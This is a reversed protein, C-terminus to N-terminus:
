CRPASTDVFALRHSGPGDGQRRAGGSSAYRRNVPDWTRGRTPGLPFATRLRRSGTVTIPSSVRPCTGSAGLAGPLARPTPHDSLWSVQRPGSRESGTKSPLGPNGSLVSWFRNARQREAVIEFLDSQRLPKGYLEVIEADEPRGGYGRNLLRPLSDALVFGFMALIAFIALLKRQHRRFVAFPM